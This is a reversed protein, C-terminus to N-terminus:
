LLTMQTALNSVNAATNQRFNNSYLRWLRNQEITKEISPLIIQGGTLQDLRPKIENNEYKIFNDMVNTFIARNEMLTKNTNEMENKMQDIEQRHDHVTMKQQIDQVTKQLEDLRMADLEQQREIKLILKLLNNLMLSNEQIISWEENKHDM